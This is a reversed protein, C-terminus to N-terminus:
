IFKDKNENYIDDTLKFALQLDMEDIGFIRDAMSPCFLNSKERKTIVLDKFKAEVVIENTIVDGFVSYTLGEITKDKVNLEYTIM